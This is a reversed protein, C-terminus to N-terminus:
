FSFAAEKAPFNLKGSKRNGGVTIHMISLQDDFLDHMLTNTLAISKVSSINDAQYYSYIADDEFEFGLGTYSVTKGDAKISLHKQVYDTVLKEMAKKDPPNILDVKTKYNQVLIKEFDDRFIKCTIELTKDSANHNIETVSVHFPHFVSQTSSVEVFSATSSKVSHIPSTGGNIYFSVPILYIFLWKNFLAAM